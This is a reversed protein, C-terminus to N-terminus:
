RGAEELIHQHGIGLLGITTMISSTSIFYNFDHENGSAMTPTIPRHYLVVLEDIDALTGDDIERLCAILADRPEWDRARRNKAARAETLTKPAKEFTEGFAEDGQVWLMWSLREQLEGPVAGRYSRMLDQQVRWQVRINPRDPHTAYITAMQDAPYIGSGDLESRYVMGHVFGAPVIQPRLSM